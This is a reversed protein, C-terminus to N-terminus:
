GQGTMGQGAERRALEIRCRLAIAALVPDEAPPMAGLLDRLGELAGAEGQGALLAAQLASLAGLLARGARRAAPLARRDGTAGEQLALLGAMAAPAIGSAGAAAAAPPASPVAFGTGPAAARAPAAMGAPGGVSAIATM